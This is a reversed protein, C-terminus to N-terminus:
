RSAVHRFIRGGAAAVLDEIEKSPEGYVDWSEFSAVSYLETRLEAPVLERHTMFADSDKYHELFLLKGGVENIYSHFGVVGEEARTLAVWRNAIGKVRNLNGDFSLVTHM